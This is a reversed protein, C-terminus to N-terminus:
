DGSTFHTSVVYFQQGLYRSRLDSFELRVRLAGQDSSTSNIDKGEGKLYRSVDDKGPFIRFEPKGVIRFRDERWFVAAGDDDGNPKGRKQNFKRANSNLKPVFAYESGM